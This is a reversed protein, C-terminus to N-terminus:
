YGPSVRRVPQIQYKALWQRVVDESTEGEIRGVETGGDHLILTPTGKLHWGAAIEAHRDTEGFEIPYGEAQLNRLWPEMRHCPQCWPASWLTLIYDHRVPPAPVPPASVPPVMRRGDTPVPPAPVMPPVRGVILRTAPSEARAAVALCLVFLCARAFM